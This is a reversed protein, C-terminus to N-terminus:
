PLKDFFLCAAAILGDWVIIFDSGAYAGITPLQASM